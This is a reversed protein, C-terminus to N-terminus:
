NEQAKLYLVCVSETFVSDNQQQRCIVLCLWQKNKFLVRHIFLKPFNYLLFSLLHALLLKVRDRSSHM